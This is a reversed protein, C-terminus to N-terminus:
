ANLVHFLLTVLLFHPIVALELPLYDSIEAEKRKARNRSHKIYWNKKRKKLIELADAIAQNEEM